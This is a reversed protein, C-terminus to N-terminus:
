GHLNSSKLERMFKTLTRLFLDQTMFANATRWVDVVVASISM